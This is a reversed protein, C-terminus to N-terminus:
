SKNKFRSILKIRMVLIISLKSKRRGCVSDRFELHFYSGKIDWYSASTSM